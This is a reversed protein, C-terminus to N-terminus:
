LGNILTLKWVCKREIRTVILKPLENSTFAM